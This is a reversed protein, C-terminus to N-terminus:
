DDEVEVSEVFAEMRERADKIACRQDVQKALQRWFSIAQSNYLEPFDCEDRHPLEVVLRINGGSGRNRMRKGLSYMAMTEIDYVAQFTEQEIFIYRM